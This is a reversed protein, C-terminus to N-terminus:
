QQIQDQGQPRQDRPWHVGVRSKSRLRSLAQVRRSQGCDIQYDNIEQAEELIKHAM